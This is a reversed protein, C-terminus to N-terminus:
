IRDERRKACAHSQRGRRRDATPADSLTWDLITFNARLPASSVSTSPECECVTRMEIRHSPLTQADLTLARRRAASDAGAISAKSARLPNLM